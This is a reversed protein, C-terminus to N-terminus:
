SDHFTIAIREKLKAEVRRADVIARAYPQRSAIAKGVAESIVCLLHLVYQGLLRASLMRDSKAAFSGFRIEVYSGPCQFDRHTEIIFVVVDFIQLLRMYCSVIMLGTATDAEDTTTLEQTDSSSILGASVTKANSPPLNDGVYSTLADIFRETTQFLQQLWSTDISGDQKSPNLMKDKKATEVAKVSTLCRYLELHLKTLQEVPDIPTDDFQPQLDTISDPETSAGITNADVGQAFLSAPLDNYQPFLSNSDELGAFPSDAYSNLQNPVAWSSWIDLDSGTYSTPTIQTVITSSSNGVNENKEVSVDVPPCMAVDIKNPSLNAFEIGAGARRCSSTSDGDASPSWAIVGCDSDATPLHSSGSGSSTTNGVIRSTGGYRSKNKYRAGNISASANHNKRRCHDAPRGMRQLQRAVCEVNTALCRDCAHEGSPKRVCRLKQTHCKACALQKQSKQFGINISEESFDLLRESHFVGTNASLQQINDQQPSM